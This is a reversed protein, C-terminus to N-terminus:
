LSIPAQAIRDLNSTPVKDVPVPSLHIPSSSLYIDTYFSGRSERKTSKPGSIVLALLRIEREREVLIHRMSFLFRDKTNWQKRLGSSDRIMM